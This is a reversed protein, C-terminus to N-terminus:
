NSRCCNCWMRQFAKRWRQKSKSKPPQSPRRRVQHSHKPGRNSSSNNSGEEKNHHALMGHAAQAERVQEPKQHRHGRRHAREAEKGAEQIARAARNWFKAQKAWAFRRSLAGDMWARTKGQEAYM